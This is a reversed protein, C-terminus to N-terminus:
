DPTETIQADRLDATDSTLRAASAWTEGDKSTIVRLAGDPSVHGQGERFVCFWEGGRHILGTFANHPAENWIKACSVLEATFPAADQASLAPAAVLSFVALCVFRSM